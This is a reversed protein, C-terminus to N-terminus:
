KIEIFQGNAWCNQSLYGEVVVGGQQKCNDYYNGSVFSDILILLLTVIISTIILPQRM